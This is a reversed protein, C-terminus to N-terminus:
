IVTFIIAKGMQRGNRCFFLHDYYYFIEKEGSQLDMFQLAQDKEYIVKKCGPWRKEYFEDTLDYKESEKYTVREPSAEKKGSTSACGPLLLLVSLLLLLRKM